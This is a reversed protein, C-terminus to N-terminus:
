NPMKQFVIKCALGQSNSESVSGNCPINFMLGNVSCKCSFILKVKYLIYSVFFLIKKRKHKIKLYLPPRPCILSFKTFFKNEFLYFYCSLYLYDLFGTLHSCAEVWIELVTIM